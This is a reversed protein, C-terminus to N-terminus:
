EKTSQWIAYGTEGALMSLINYTFCGLIQAPDTFQFPNRGVFTSIFDFAWFFWVFGAGTNRERMGARKYDKWLAQSLDIKGTPRSPLSYKQSEEFEAKAQDPRKGRLTKAEMVQVLLSIGFSLWFLFNPLITLWGFWGIWNREYWPFMPVGQFMAQWIGDTSLFAGIFFGIAGIIKTGSSGPTLFQELLASFFVFPVSVVNIIWEALIELLNSSQSKKSPMKDSQSSIKKGDKDLIM